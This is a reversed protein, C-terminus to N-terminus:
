STAALHRALSDELVARLAPREVDAATHLKVHRVRAGTGEVIGAPDSVLAGNALQVNVHARHPAIGAWLDKLPRPGTAYGVIRDARDLVEVADPRIALVLRRAARAIAAVDDSSEGFFEDVQDTV